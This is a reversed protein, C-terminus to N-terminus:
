GSREAALAAARFGVQLDWGDVRTRLDVFLLLRYVGIMPQVLLMGILVYPTVQGDMASGFPQGLQLVTYVLTQGTFEGVVAGWLTLVLFGTVSAFAIMPNLLALRVARSPVRGGEARELLAVEAIFAVMTLTVPLAMGCGLTVALGTWGLVAFASTPRSALEGLVQRVTVEDSFLLRGALLTFPAQLAPALLIPLVLWARHGDTLASGAALALAWPGVLVLALRVFVGAHARVLQVALDFVELPGRPRLAVRCLNPNM